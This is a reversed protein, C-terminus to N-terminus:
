FKVFKKCIKNKLIKKGILGTSGTIGCISM